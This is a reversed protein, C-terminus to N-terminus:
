LPQFGDDLFSSLPTHGVLWSLLEGEGVDLVSNRTLM